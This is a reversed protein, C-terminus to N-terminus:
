FNLTPLNVLGHSLQGRTPKDAFLPRDLFLRSSSPVPHLMGGAAPPGLTAMIVLRPLRLTSPVAQCPRHYLYCTRRCLNFLQRPGPRPSLASRFAQM